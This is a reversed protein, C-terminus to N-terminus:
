KEPYGKDKWYWWKLKESDHQEHEAYYVACRYVYLVCPDDQFGKKLSDLRYLDEPDKGKLDEVCHIGINNLHREMNTGVGPIKKLDTARVDASKEMMRVRGGLRQM